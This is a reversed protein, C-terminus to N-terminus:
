QASRELEQLAPGPVPGPAAEVPVIMAATSLVVAAAAAAFLLSTRLRM